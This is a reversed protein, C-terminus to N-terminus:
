AANLYYFNTSINVFRLGAANLYYFNTSINVFRLGLLSLVIRSDIRELRAVFPSTLYVLHAVWYMPYLRLFRARYWATWSVPGKAEQSATSQMLVWGSLIIFVGVAHFGLGSLKVWIYKLITAAGAAFSHWDAPPLIGHEFYTRFFHFYVVVLITLGKAVDLWLLRKM